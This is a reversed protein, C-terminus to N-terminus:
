KRASEDGLHVELMRVRVVLEDSAARMMVVDYTTLAASYFIHALAGIASQLPRHQATRRM